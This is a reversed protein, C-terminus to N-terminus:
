ELIVVRGTDSWSGSALKVFYVGSAVRIGESDRCDWDVSGHRSATARASLRRILRGGASYISATVLSRTEELEFHFAVSGAAPNPACTLLMLGQGGSATGTPDSCVCAVDRAGITTGAEGAGICPSCDQLTLLSMATDCFAPDLHINDHYIGCLTDTIANGFSCSFSVEPVSTDACLLGPGHENFALITNTVVPHAAGSSVIAAGGPTSNYAFTCNNIISARSTAIVAGDFERVENRFFLCREFECPAATVGVGGGFYRASNGIFDCDTFVAHADYCTVAGGHHVAWNGDFLCDTISPTGATNRLNLAGGMWGSNDIFQVANLSVPVFTAYIAGGWGGGSNDLMVCDSMAFSSAFQAVIAGGARGSQPTTSNGDFISGNIAYPGGGTLFVAGGEFEAFNNRFVMDLLAVSAEFCLVAGGYGDYVFVTDDYAHANVVTFGQIIAFPGEDNELVFARDLDECDIVTSDAGSASCVSLTKGGFNLGRNAEGSYVGSFVLVTDGDTAAAMGEGITLYDGGGGVDVTVVSALGSSVMLLIAAVMATQRM